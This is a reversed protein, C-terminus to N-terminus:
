PEKIVKHQAIWPEGSLFTRSSLPNLSAM